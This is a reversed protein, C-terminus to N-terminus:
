PLEMKEIELALARDTHSRPAVRRLEAIEEHEYIRMSGDLTFKEPLEGLAKSM